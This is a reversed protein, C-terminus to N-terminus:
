SSFFFIDLSWAPPVIKQEERGKEARESRWSWQCQCSILFYKKWPLKDFTFEDRMTGQRFSPFGGGKKACRKTRSCIRRWRNVCLLIHPKFGANCEPNYGRKGERIRDKRERGPEVSTKKGEASSSKLKLGLAYVWQGIENSTMVYENVQLSVM